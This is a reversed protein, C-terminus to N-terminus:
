YRLRLYSFFNTQLLFEYVDSIKILLSIQTQFQTTLLLKFVFVMHPYSLKGQIYQQRILAYVFVSKQLCLCPEVYVLHKDEWSEDNDDDVSYWFPGTSRQM